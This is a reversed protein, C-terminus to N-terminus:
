RVHLVKVVSALMDLRDRAKKGSHSMALDAEAFGYSKCQEVITSTNRHETTASICPATSTCSLLMVSFSVVCISAQLAAASTHHWHRLKCQPELNCSCNDHANCCATIVAAVTHRIHMHTACTSAPLEWVDFRYWMRHMCQISSISLLM